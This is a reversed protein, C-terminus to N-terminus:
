RPIQSCMRTQLHSSYFNLNSTFRDFLVGESKACFDWLPM